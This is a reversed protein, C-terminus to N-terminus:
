GWRQLSPTFPLTNFLSEYVGDIRKKVPIMAKLNWNLRM